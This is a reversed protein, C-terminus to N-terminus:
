TYFNMIYVSHVTVIGWFQRHSGKVLTEATRSITQSM